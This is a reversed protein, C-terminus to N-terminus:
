PTPPTDMLRPHHPRFVDPMYLWDQIRWAHLLWLNSTDINSGGRASCAADSIGDGVVIGNAFCLSMHRHWHDNNGPLGVPPPAQGSNVIWAMGVLRANPSNGGFLLLNPKTPDITSGIGESSIYHAGQGHVYPAIFRFGGAVAEAATPYQLAFSRAARLDRRLAKCDTTNLPGKMEPYFTAEDMMQQETMDDMPLPDDATCFWPQAAAGAAPVSISLGAAGLGATMTVAATLSTITRAFRRRM